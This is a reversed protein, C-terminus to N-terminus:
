YVMETNKQIKSNEKMYKEMLTHLQEKELFKTIKGIEKMVNEMIGFSNEKETLKEM